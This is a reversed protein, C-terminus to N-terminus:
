FAWSMALSVPLTLPHIGAQAPIVPPRLFSPGQGDEERLRPDMKIGDDERVRPDM